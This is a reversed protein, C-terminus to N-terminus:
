SRAPQDTLDICPAPINRSSTLWAIDGEAIVHAIALSIVIWATYLYHEHWEPAPMLIRLSLAAGTWVMARRVWLSGWAYIPVILAVLGLSRLPTIAQLDHLISLRSPDVVSWLGIGVLEIVTGLSIAMHSPSALLRLMLAQTWWHAVLAVPLLWLAWTLWARRSWRPGFMACWVPVLALALVGAEKGLVSASACVASAVISGQQAALLALLLWTAAVLESRYAVAAVAETQVPWLLFLAMTLMATRAPVIARAVLWVLLGNLLHWALSVMRAATASPGCLWTTVAYSQSTLWRPGLHWSLPIQSLPILDPRADEYVWGGSLSGAYAM